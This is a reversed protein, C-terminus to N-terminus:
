LKDTKQAPRAQGSVNASFLRRNTPGHSPLWCLGSGANLLHWQNHWLRSAAEDGRHMRLWLSESPRMHTNGREYHIKWFDRSMEESSDYKRKSITPNM